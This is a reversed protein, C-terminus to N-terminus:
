LVYANSVYTRAFAVRSDRLNRAWNSVNGCLNMISRSRNQLLIKLVLAAANHRVRHGYACGCSLIFISLLFRYFPFRLPFHYVSLSGEGVHASLHIVLVRRFRYLLITFLSVTFLFCVCMPSPLRFLVLHWGSFADTVKHTSTHICIYIYIYVM